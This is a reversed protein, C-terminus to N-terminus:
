RLKEVHDWLRKHLQIHEQDIQTYEEEEWSYFGEMYRIFNVGIQIQLLKNRTYRM